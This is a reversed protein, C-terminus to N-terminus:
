DSDEELEAAALKAEVYKKRNEERIQVVKLRQKIELLRKSAKNQRQIDETRVKALLLEKKHQTSTMSVTESHCSVKSRLSSRPKESTKSSVVEGSRSSVSRVQGDSGVFKRAKQVVGDHRKTVLDLCQELKKAFRIKTRANEAM